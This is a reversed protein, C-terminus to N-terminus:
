SNESDARKRRDIKRSRKGLDEGYRHYDINNTSKYTNNSIDHDNDKRNQPSHLSPMSTPQWNAIVNTGDVDDMNDADIDANDDDLYGHNEYNEDTDDSNWGDAELSPSRIGFSLVFGVFSVAAFVGFPLAEGKQGEYKYALSFLGGSLFPGVARGAASLTQALGNM